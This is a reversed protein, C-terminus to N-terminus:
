TARSSAESQVVPATATAITQPPPTTASSPLTVTASEPPTSTQRELSYTKLEANFIQLLGHLCAAVVPGIFVGWLGMAQLGGLVSVFALLPHLTISSQLVYMRILNDLTGVFVAGYLVLFTAQGWNGHWALLAALPGWVPFTGVFPILAFFTGLMAILFFQHYGVIFAGCAAAVGQGVAAALTALIVARTAQNFQMLLQRQYDGQMPILAVTADLLRPGDALFYYFALVFMLLSVATSAISGLATLTSGAYGLTKQGITLALAHVQKRLQQTLEAATIEENGTLERYQSVLWELDIKQSIAEVTRQVDDSGALQKAMSFLQGTAFITCVIMPILIMAMVAITTLGAALRPRKEGTRALIRRYLPQCVITLVAALLLPLLFPALVQFFTIGLFVVITALLILSVLRAM